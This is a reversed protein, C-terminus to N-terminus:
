FVPRNTCFHASARAPGDFYFLCFNFVELDSISTKFEEYDSDFDSKRYDLIDYTRKKVNGVLFQFKANLMEVGEIRSKELSQWAQWVGMLDLIKELRRQFSNIKGFIYTESFDFQREDASTEIKRKTNMFSRQYEENLKVCSQCKAKFVDHPIEWVSLSGNETIYEKCATIM